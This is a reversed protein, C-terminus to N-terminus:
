SLSGITIGSRRGVGKGAAGSPGAVVAGAARTTAAGLTAEASNVATGFRRLKEAFYLSCIRASVSRATSVPPTEAMRRRSPRSALEIGSWLDASNRDLKISGGSFISLTATVKDDKRASWITQVDKDRDLLEIQDDATTYIAAFNDDPSIGPDAQVCLYIEADDTKGHWVGWLGPAPESRLPVTTAVLLGFAAAGISVGRVFSPSKNGECSKSRKPRLDKSLTTGNWIQDV